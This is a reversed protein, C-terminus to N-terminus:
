IADEIRECCVALNRHRDALRKERLAEAANGVFEPHLPHHDHLRLRSALQALCAQDRAKCGGQRLSKHSMCKRGEPLLPAFQGSGIERRSEPTSGFLAVDSSIPAISGLRGLIHTLAAPLPPNRSWEM